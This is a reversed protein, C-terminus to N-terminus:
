FNTGFDLKLTCTKVIVNEKIKNLREEMDNEKVVIKVLSQHSHRLIWNRLEM